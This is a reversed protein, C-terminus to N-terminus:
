VNHTQSDFMYYYLCLLMDHAVHCTRRRRHATHHLKLILQTMAKLPWQHRGATCVPKPPLACFGRSPWINVVSQLHCQEGGNLPAEVGGYGQPCVLVSNVM